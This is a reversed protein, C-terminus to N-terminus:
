TMIFPMSQRLMVANSCLMRNTTIVAKPQGTSGSTLLFKIITDHGTTAHREDLAASPNAELGEFSTIARGELESDGVVEVDAGVVSLARTYQQTDFAAILGPTLLALVYRLKALEGASQSYAPSVSCYPIGAWMSAFKLTLHEISNGSLILIPHEADLGRQFLGTAIRRVRTLMQAYTVSQWEGQKNRRAVLARQPHQKAGQELWDILRPPYPQITGNPRLLMTGDDRYEFATSFPDPTWATSASRM